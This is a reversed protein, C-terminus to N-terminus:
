LLGGVLTFPDFAKVVWSLYKKRAAALADDEATTGRVLYWAVEAAARTARAAWAARASTDASTAYAWASAETARAAWASAKAARASTDASAETTRAAEAALTVARAADLGLPGRGLFWAVVDPPDWFDLVDLAILRAVRYARPPSLRFLLRWLAWMRDAIPIPLLAIDFPSLSEAGGWLACVRPLSYSLCPGERMIDGVTYRMM